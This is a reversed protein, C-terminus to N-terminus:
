GMEVGNSLRNAAAVMRATCGSEDTGGWKELMYHLVVNVLAEVKPALPRGHEELVGASSQRPPVPM